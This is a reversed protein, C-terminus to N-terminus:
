VIQGFFHAVGYCHDPGVIVGHNRRGHGLEPPLDSGRSWSVNNRYFGGRLLLALTKAVISRDMVPHYNDTRRNIILWIM